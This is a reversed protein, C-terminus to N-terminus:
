APDNKLYKKKQDFENIEYDIETFKNIFLLISLHTKECHEKTTTRAM